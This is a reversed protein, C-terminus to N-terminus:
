ARRGLARCDAATQESEAVTRSGLALDAGTEACVLAIARGIGRGAGTVMIVKGTLDFDIRSNM